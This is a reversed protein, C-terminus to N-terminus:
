CSTDGTILVLFTLKPSSIWSFSILDAGDISFSCEMLAISVFNLSGVTWDANLSGFSSFFTVKARRSFLTEASILEPDSMSIPMMCVLLSVKPINVRGDLVGGDGLTSALDGFLM